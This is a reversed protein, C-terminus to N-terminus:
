SRRTIGFSRIQYTLTSPKMGLLEAAGGDGAIKGGAKELVAVLNQKELERMEDVTYFGRPPMTMTRVPTTSGEHLHASSRTSPELVEAAALEPLAADLRLVGDPSLILAREAVNELERVNGPWTYSELM